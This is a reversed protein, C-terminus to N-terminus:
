IYEWCHSQQTMQNRKSNKMEHIETIINIIEMNRSSQKKKKEGELTKLHLDQDNIPCREVKEICHTVATFKRRLVSKAADM